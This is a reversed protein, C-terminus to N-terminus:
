RIQLTEIHPFSFHITMHQHAKCDVKKVEDIVVKDILENLIVANLEAIDAYKSLVSIARKAASISQESEQM